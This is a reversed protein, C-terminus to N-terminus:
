TINSILGVAQARAVAFAVRLSLVSIWARLKADRETEIRPLRRYGQLMQTVNYVLAQKKTNGSSGVSGNATAGQPFKDTVVIDCGAYGGLRGTTNTALPGFKEQSVYNDFDLMELYEDIGVLIVIDEPNVGYKGMTKRASKISDSTFTASQTTRAATGVVAKRMGNFSLIKNDADPANVSSINAAATNTDGNLFLDDVEQGTSVVLNANMDGLTSSLVSDEEVEDPIQNFTALEEATLATKGTGPTSQNAAVNIVGRTLKVPNFRHTVDVTKAGMPHVPITSAIRAEVLVDALQQASTLSPLLEGGAGDSRDLEAYIENHSENMMPEYTQRWMRPSVSEKIASAMTSMHSDIDDQTLSDAVKNLEAMNQMRVEAKDLESANGYEVESKILAQKIDLHKFKGDAIRIKGAAINTQKSADLAKNFATLKEEFAVKLNNIREDVESKTSANSKVELIQAEISKVADFADQVTQAQTM